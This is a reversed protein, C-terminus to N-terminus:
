LWKLLIMKVEIHEWTSIYNIQLPVIIEISIKKKKKRVKCIKLDIHWEWNYLEM